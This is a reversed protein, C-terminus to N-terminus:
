SCMKVILREIVTTPPMGTKIDLDAKLIEDLLVLIQGKKFGAANRAIQEFQRPHLGLDKRMETKSKIKLLERTRLIMRANWAMLGLLETERKRDRKLSSFVRLATRADKKEIGRILDFATHSPNVGIIKEVAKATVLPRKGIYLIINDMNSSLTRLDNPLGEKIANVAELSIKKGSSGAKKILWTNLAPDTLRRYYVLQALKSAELLFEGKIVPSRSEIVFVSSERPNRLYFLVSEKQPAALSDADKLVVVRKKSLFPLTNLGELMEKLNFDKERAYFVSYNLDKTQSSLFKAKLKEVAEEKLFDEEGLLLYAPFIKTPM